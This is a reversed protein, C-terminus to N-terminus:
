AIVSPYSAKIITKWKHDSTKLKRLWILKPSNAYHTINPIRLGGKVIHKVTAKRSVRDQKRKM